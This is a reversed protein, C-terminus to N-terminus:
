SRSYCFNVYNKFPSIRSNKLIAVENQKEMVLLSLSTIINFAAVIVILSILLAMVNKEMKVAQFLEGKQKRWDEYHLNNSLPKPNYRLKKKKYIAM